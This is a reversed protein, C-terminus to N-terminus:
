KHRIGRQHYEVNKPRADYNKPTNVRDNKHLTEQHADGEFHFKDAHIEKGNRFMTGDSARYVQNEKYTNGDPATFIEKKPSRSRRKRNLLVLTGGAIVALAIKIKNNM